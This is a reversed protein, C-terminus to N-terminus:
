ASKEADAIKQQLDAEKDLQVKIHEQIRNIEDLREEVRFELEARAAAVKVLELKMRKIDLSSMAM